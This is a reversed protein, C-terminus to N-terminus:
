NLDQWGASGAYVQLKSTSMNYIVAGSEIGALNGRETTTLRPMIAFREIKAGASGFDVAGRTFPTGVGLSAASGIPNGILVNGGFSATVAVGSM